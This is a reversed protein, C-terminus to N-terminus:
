TNALISLSRALPFLAYTHKPTHMWTNSALAHAVEQDKLDCELGAADKSPTFAVKAQVWDKETDSARRYQLQLYQVRPHLSCTPDTNATLARLKAGSGGGVLEVAMGTGSGEVFTGDALTPPYGKGEKGAPIEISVLQGNEVVAGPEAGAGACSTVKVTADDGYGTGGNEVVFGSIRRDCRLPDIPYNPNKIRVPVMADDSGRAELVAFGGAEAVAGSWEMAPCEPVYRVSLMAADDDDGVGIKYDDSIGDGNLDLGGTLKLDGLGWKDLVEHLDSLAPADLDDECVSLASLQIDSYAFSKPGREVEITLTVGGAPADPFVLKNNNGPFNIDLMADNLSHGNAKVRLADPNSAEELKIKIPIGDVGFQFESEQTKQLLRLQFVAKGDQPLNELNITRPQLGFDERQVTHPEHPCSSRGSITKFVPTAFVPDIVILVDFQDGVEGDGLNVEVATHHATESSISGGVEISMSTAMEGTLEAEIVFVSIDSTLDGFFSMEHSTSWEYSATKTSSGETSFTHMAGGGSFSIMNIGNLAQQSVAPLGTASGVRRANAVSGVGNHIGAEGAGPLMGLAGSPLALDKQMEGIVSESGMKGEETRSVAEGVKFFPFLLPDGPAKTPDAKGELGGLTSLRKGAMATLIADHLDGDKAERKLKENLQLTKKWSVVANELARWKACPEGAIDGAARALGTCPTATEVCGKCAESFRKSVGKEDKGDCLAFCVGGSATAVSSQLEGQQERLDPLVRSRMDWDSRFMVANENSTKIAWASSEEYSATCAAEDLAVIATKAIRISLLPVLFMDAMNGPNGPDDTTAYTRESHLSLVYGTERSHPAAAGPLTFDSALGINLVADAEAAEQCPGAVVIAGFGSGAM